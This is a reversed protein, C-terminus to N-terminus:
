PQSTSVGSITLGFIPCESAALPINATIFAANIVSDEIIGPTAYKWFKFGSLLYDEGGHQM